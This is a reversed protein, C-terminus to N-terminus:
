DESIRSEYNKPPVALLYYLLNHVFGNCATIGMHAARLHIVADWKIPSIVFPKWKDTSLDDMRASSALIKGDGASYSSTKIEGTKRNVIATQRTKVADGLFLYESLNNPKCNNPTYYVRMAQTFQKARKLCKTLHDIAIRRRESKLPVDPLLIKLYKNQKPNALGWKLDIWVQPDYIDVPEGYPDDAYVLQRNELLPMMQYYSHFTGIVAPPYFPAHNAIQLGNIMELCTDLYGANPTGIILLKDMYKSGAWDLIPLSNDIPLDQTGYRLYYRSLLGGMSHALFDFHVDYEDIDYLEKYIKQIYVRKKLVFEHLKTANESLDRRWDYYFTFLSHCKKKKPLTKDERCYGADTLIDLLKDYANRQFHVGFLNIDFTSLFETPVINDKLESLTKGTGMPLSLEQLEKNTYGRIADIGTFSGWVDKGTKSNKLHAGLFGHVVIVPNRAIGEYDISNQMIGSVIAKRYVRGSQYSGISSDYSKKRPEM